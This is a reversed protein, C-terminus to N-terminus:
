RMGVLTGRSTYCFSNNTSDQRHSPAYLLSLKALRFSCEMYHHCRTEERAIKLSGNSYIWSEFIYVVTLTM